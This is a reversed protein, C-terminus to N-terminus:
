SSQKAESAIVGHNWLVFDGENIFPHRTYRALTTSFCMFLMVVGDQESVSVIWGKAMRLPITVGIGSFLFFRAPRATLQNCPLSPPVVNVM